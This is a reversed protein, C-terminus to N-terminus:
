SHPDALNVMFSVEVLNVDRQEYTTKDGIFTKNYKEQRICTPSKYGHIRVV